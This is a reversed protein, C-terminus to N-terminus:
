ILANGWPNVWNGPRGSRGLNRIAVLVVLFAASAIGSAVVFVVSYGHVTSSLTLARAQQALFVDRSCGRHCPRGTRANRWGAPRLQAGRIRRGHGCTACGSTAGVILPVFSFGLGLALVLLPGFVASGYTSQVDIRSLWFLGIAALLPGITVFVRPRIRTMLKAVVQSTAAIGLSFPVFALGTELPSYGMLTQLLLPLFFSVGFISGTLCFMVVYSATRNRDTLLRPPLMPDDSRVETVAFAVLLM